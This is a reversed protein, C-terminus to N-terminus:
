VCAHLTVAKFKAANRSKLAAVWAEMRGFFLRLAIGNITGKPVVTSKLGIELKVGEELNRGPQLGNFSAELGAGHSEFIPDAQLWTLVQKSLGGTSVVIPVRGCAFPKPHLPKLARQGGAERGTPKVTKGVAQRVTEAVVEQQVSEADAAREVTEAVAPGTVLEQGMGADLQGATEGGAGEGTGAVASTIYALRSAQKASARRYFLPMHIRVSGRVWILNTGPDM